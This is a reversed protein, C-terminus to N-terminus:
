SNQCNNTRDIVAKLFHLFDYSDFNLAELYTLIAFKASRSDGFISKVYIRLLLLESFEM